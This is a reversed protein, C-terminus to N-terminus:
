DQALLRKVARRRRARIAELEAKTLDRGKARAKAIGRWIGEAIRALGLALDIAALINTVPM